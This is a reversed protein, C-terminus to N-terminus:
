RVLTYPVPQEGAATTADPRLVRGIQLAQRLQAENARTSLRLVLSDGDVAEVDVADVLSLSELHTLVRGYDNLGGIGGVRLRTVGAVPSTAALARSMEDAAGDIGDEVNGDFRHRQGAFLLTWRVVATDGLVRACGYLLADAGYRRSMAELLRERGDCVHEPRLRWFEHADIRPLSAPLGRRAATSLLRDRLAGTDMTGSLSPLSGAGDDGTQPRLWPASPAMLEPPSLWLAVPPRLPAELPTPRLQPPLRLLGDYAGAFPSGADDLLRRAGVGDDLALWVLTHPREAGWQARGLDLLARNIAAEDFAAWVGDDTYSWQQVLTRADRRLADFDSDSGADRQGSVKVLVRNLAEVFAANLSRDDRGAVEVEAAYLGEVVAAEGRGPWSAMLVVLVVVLAKM